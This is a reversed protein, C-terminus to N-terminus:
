VNRHEEVKEQSYACNDRQQRVDKSLDALTVQKFRALLLAEAEEFSENMARNVAKEVLCGPAETRNGVAFITPNDLASYIDYMTVAGLDRALQWGGGHGKESTVFGQERLGALIKRVVAPNTQMMKSMAESTVPTGAEAM